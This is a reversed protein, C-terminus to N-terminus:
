STTSSDEQSIQNTTSVQNDNSNEKATENSTIFEDNIAQMIAGGNLLVGLGMDNDDNMYYIRELKDWDLNDIDIDLKSLAIGSYILTQGLVAITENFSLDSTNIQEIIKNTTSVVKDHIMPM